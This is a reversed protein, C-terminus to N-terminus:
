DQLEWKMQIVSLTHLRIDMSNTFFNMTEEDAPFPSIGRCYATLDSTACNSTLGVFHMNQAKFHRADALPLHDHRGNPMTLMSTM